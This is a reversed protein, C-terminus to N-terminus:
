RVSIHPRQGLVMDLPLSLNRFYVLPQYACPFPHTEPFAERLIHVSILWRTGLHLLYFLMGWASSGAHAFARLCFPAWAQSTNTYLRCFGGHFTRHKHPLASGDHDLPIYRKRLTWPVVFFEGLTLSWSYFALSM